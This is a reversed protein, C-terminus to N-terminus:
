SASEVDIQNKGESSGEFDKQFKFETSFGQIDWALQFNKYRSFYYLYEAIEGKSAPPDDRSAPPDDRSAPPDDRSALANDKSAPPDDKSWIPNDKSAPPDDRRWIPNDKSFNEFVSIKGDKNKRALRFTVRSLYNKLFKNWDKGVGEAPVIRESQSAEGKCFRLYRYRYDTLSYTLLTWPFYLSIGNSFQYEQGVFGSLLVCEQIKEIVNQCEKKIDSFVSIEEGLSSALSEAFICEIILKQCFDKLDVCQERMYTQCDYHAQLLAKKLVQFVLIDKDTLSEAEVKDALWLSNNLKVALTNITEAVPQVGSMDWAAMDVSRGGIAYKSQEDIFSHVFGTALERIHKKKEEETAEESLPKELLFNRLISTYGWGSNPLSGESAIMTETVDKLEFAVELMSMVCSDFGLIATTQGLIENVEEIAWRFKFITLYTGSSNDRLFSTGHFGFSHGSFILAYNKAKRKQTNVCWNVFNMISYASASNEGNQRDEEPKKKPSVKAPYVMDEKKIPHRYVKSDSLDIYHSPTTISSSDIFALFHTVCDASSRPELAFDGIDGLSKAMFESLNNDGAMYVMITWEAEQIEEQTEEQNESDM